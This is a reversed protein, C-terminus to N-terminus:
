CRMVKKPHTTTMLMKPPNKKDVFTLVFAEHGPLKVKMRPTLGRNEEPVKGGLNEFFRKINNM